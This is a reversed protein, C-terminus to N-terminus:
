AELFDFKYDIFWLINLKKLKEILNIITKKTTKTKNINEVKHYKEM